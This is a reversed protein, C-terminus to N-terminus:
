GKGKMVGVVDILQGTHRRADIEFPNDYYPDSDTCGLKIALMILGYMIPQFIGLRMCQNVHKKEHVLTSADEKPDRTMVVVNGIAHGAWGTWARTLWRPSKDFNVLWVLAEGDRGHFKYWRFLNFLGAYILGALTIPSAWFYGLIAKFKDM